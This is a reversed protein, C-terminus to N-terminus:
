KSVERKGRTQKEYFAIITSKMRETLSMEFAEPRWARRHGSDDSSGRLKAYLRNINEKHRKLKSLADPDSSECEYCIFLVEFDLEIVESLDSRIDDFIAAIAARNDERAEEVEDLTDTNEHGLAWVLQAKEVQSIFTDAQFTDVFAPDDRFVVHGFIGFLPLNLTAQRQVFRAVRLLRDRDREDIDDAVLVNTVIPDVLAIAEDFMDPISRMIDEDLADSESIKAGASVMLRRSQEFLCLTAHESLSRALRVQEMARDSADEAAEIASRHHQEASMLLQQAAHFDGPKLRMRRGLAVVYRAEYAEEVLETKERIANLARGGIWVLREWGSVRAAVIACFLLIRWSEEAPLRELNDEIQRITQLDENEYAKLVDIMLLDGTIDALNILLRAHMRRAISRENGFNRATERMEALIRRATFLLVTEDLEEILESQLNELGAIYAAPDREMVEFAKKTASVRDRLTARNILFTSGTLSRWESLTAVLRESIERKGTVPVKHLLQQIERRVGPDGRVTDFALQLSRSETQTVSTLLYETNKVVKKFLTESSSNNHLSKQNLMAVFQAPHRLTYHQMFRSYRNGDFDPVFRDLGDDYEGVYGAPENEAWQYRQEYFANHMHLDGTVLCHVVYNEGRRAKTHEMANLAEMQALVIADTRIAGRKGVNKLRRTWDNVVQTDVRYLDQPLNIVPRLLKSHRLRSVMAVEMFRTHEIRSVAECLEEAYSDATSQGITPEAGVLNTAMDLDAKFADKDFKELFEQPNAPGSFFAKLQRTFERWHDPMMFPGTADTEVDESAEKSFLREGTLVADVVKKSVIKESVTALYNQNHREEENLRGPWILFLLAVAPDVYYRITCRPFYSADYDNFYALGRLRAAEHVREVLQDQGDRLTSAELYPGTITM